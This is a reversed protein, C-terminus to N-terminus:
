IMKQYCHEKIMTSVEEFSLNGTVFDVVMNSAVQENMVLLYDNIFLFYAMCAFATRKNGNHFVHNKAISEYLATAKLFIDPYLFDGFMTQFPREISSDLLGPEKVGVIEGKSYDEIMKQNIETAVQYSLKKM